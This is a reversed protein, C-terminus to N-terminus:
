DDTDVTEFKGTSSNYESLIDHIDDYRYTSYHDGTDADYLKVETVDPHAESETYTYDDESDIYDNYYLEDVATQANVSLDDYDDNDDYDDDDDHTTNDTVTGNTADSVSAEDDNANTTDHARRSSQAILDVHKAVDNSAILNATAKAHSRSGSLKFTYHGPFLPGAKFTYHDNKSTALAHSNAMLTANAVNTTLVPHMTTVRLKYIPFVLLNHGATVLSFTHDRTEGNKQLDAKMEKVYNPHTRAYTLLPQVTDGTIKLNPNDSILHDALDDSQNDTIYDTITAVQKEKGAQKNYFSVGLVIVAIAAVALVCWVGRSLWKSRKGSKSSTHHRQRRAPKAPTQSLDFGCHECFMSNAAIKQHCNPCTKM